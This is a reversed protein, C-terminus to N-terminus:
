GSKSHLFMRVASIGARLAGVWFGHMPTALVELHRETNASPPLLMWYM